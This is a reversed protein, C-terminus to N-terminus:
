YLSFDEFKKPKRILRGPRTTQQTGPTQPDGKRPSTNTQQEHQQPGPDILCEIPGEAQLPAAPPPQDPKHLVANSAIAPPDALLPQSPPSIWRPINQPATGPRLQARNRRLVLSGTDINYSRPTPSSIVQGYLWPTGRHSPRPRAYAHSGVPLPLLPAQAHKDYQAKSAERRLRIETSVTLPDAPEPKLLDASLPLTSRTRRGMLRQTPSFSHGRPSTNRVNLLALSIDHSKKLLSKADNVTALRFSYVTAIDERFRSFSENLGFLFKDRMFEDANVGFSCRGAATRATTEWASISTQTAQSMKSWFHYRDQMLTSAGVYHEKIHQLWIWPKEADETPIKSAIVDDLTNWESAPIASRLVALEFPRKAAIFHDATETTRNKAPNRYGELLCYDHFRTEWHRYHDRNARVAQVDLVPKDHKSM